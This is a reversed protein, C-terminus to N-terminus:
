QYVVKSQVFINRRGAEKTFVYNKLIHFCVGEHAAHARVAIAPYAVVVRPRLRKDFRAPTSTVDGGYMMITQPPPENLYTSLVSNM